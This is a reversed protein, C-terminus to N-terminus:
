KCINKNYKITYQSTLLLNNFNVYVKIKRLIDVNKIKPEKIRM